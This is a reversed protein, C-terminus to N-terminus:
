VTKLSNTKRVKVINDTAGNLGAQDRAIRGVFVETHRAVRLLLSVVSTGHRQPDDDIPNASGGAWDKWHGVLRAEGDSLNAICNADLDCGTDLIAVRVKNETPHEECTRDM